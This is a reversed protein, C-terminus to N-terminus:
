LFLFFIHALHTSSNWFIGCLTFFIIDALMLKQWYLWSIKTILFSNFYALYHIEWPPFDRYSLSSLLCYFAFRLRICSCIRINNCFYVDPRHGRQPHVHIKLVLLYSSHLVGHQKIPEWLKAEVRHTWNETFNWNLKLKYKRLYTFTKKESLCLCVSQYQYGINNCVYYLFPLIQRKVRTLVVLFFLHAKFYWPNILNNWVHLKKSNRFYCSQYAPTFENVCKARWISQGDAAVM